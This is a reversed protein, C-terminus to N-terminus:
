LDKQRVCRVQSQVLAEGVKEPVKEPIRNFRSGFMRRLRRGTSGSRARCWLRGSREPGTMNCADCKNRVEAM